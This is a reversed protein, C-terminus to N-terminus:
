GPYPARHVSLTNVGDDTYIKIIEIVVRIGNVNM